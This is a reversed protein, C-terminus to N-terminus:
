SLDEWQSSCSSYLSLSYRHAKRAIAERSADSLAMYESDMTSAAVYSQKNWCDWLFWHRQNLGRDCVTRGWAAQRCLSPHPTTPRSPNGGQRQRQRDHRSMRLSSAPLSSAKNTLPPTGDKDQIQPNQLDECSNVEYIRGSQRASTNLIGIRVIEIFGHFTWRWMM